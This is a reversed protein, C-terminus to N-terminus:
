NGAQKKRAYWWDYVTGFCYAFIFMGISFLADAVAIDLNILNM